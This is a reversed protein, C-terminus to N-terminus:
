REEEENEITLSANGVKATLKGEKYVEIITHAAVWLASFGFLLGVAQLVSGDIKGMPPTFFGGILLSVSIATLVVFVIQAVPMKIKKKEDAM